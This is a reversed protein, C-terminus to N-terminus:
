EEHGPVVEQSCVVAMSRNRRLRPHEGTRVSSFRLHGTRLLEILRGGRLMQIGEVVLEPFRERDMRIKYLRSEREVLRRWVDRYHAQRLGLAMARTDKEVAISRDEDLDAWDLVLDTTTSPGNDVTIPRSTRLVHFTSVQAWNSGEFLGVAPATVLESSTLKPTHIADWDPNRKYSAISLPNMVLLSSTTTSTTLAVIYM